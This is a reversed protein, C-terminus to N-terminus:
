PLLCQVILTFSFPNEEKELDQYTRSGGRIIVLWYFDCRPRCVRGDLDGNMGRPSHTTCPSLCVSSTTQQLSLETSTDVVQLAHPSRGTGQSSGGTCPGTCRTRRIRSGCGSWSWGCSPTSVMITYKGHHTYWLEGERKLM